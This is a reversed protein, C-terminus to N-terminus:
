LGRLCEGWQIGTSVMWDQVCDPLLTLLILPCYILKTAAALEMTEVRSEPVICVRQTATIIHGTQLTWFPETM